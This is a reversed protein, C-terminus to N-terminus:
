LVVGSSFTRCRQAADVIIGIARDIEEETTERSLNFSLACKAELSDIGSATLIHELKQHKGGGLSPFVEGERLHFMLLEAMVGPFVITSVNPLREADSFLVKAEKIAGTIGVEFRDRLRATEMCLHDFFESLRQFAIGLGVLAATNLESEEVSSFETGKRVFLGGSGKPGHLMSGDFSLFDIPFEEFKFYLKGLVASADVHFLIDKERCLEALEWIPHIIGTLPSAWALSVLGTKPSLSDELAERTVQGSSNLPITKQFVGVKEYQKSLNYVANEEVATTLIHNKGSMAIHDFFISHYITSLPNSTFLFHDKENAGVLARIDSQAHSISSFPEKGKLYPSAIAQWHRKLFPQMENILYSSPRSITGNDLYIPEEM